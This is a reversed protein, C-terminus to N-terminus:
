FLGFDSGSSRVSFRSAATNAMTEAGSEAVGAELPHHMGPRYRLREEARIVAAAVVVWDDGYQQVMDEQAKARAQAPDADPLGAYTTVFGKYVRLMLLEVGSAKTVVSWRVRFDRGDTTDVRISCDWHANQESDVM